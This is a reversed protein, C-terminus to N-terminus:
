NHDNHVVGFSAEILERPNNLKILMSSYLADVVILQALRSVTAGQRFTSEAAPVSLTHDSLGTLTSSGYRTISIVVAGSEKAAKAAKRIIPTEGSYSFVLATDREDLAAAGLLMMDEESPCTPLIGIRLCKQMFDEAVIHSAGIGLLLIRKSSLLREASSRLEDPSLLAPIMEINMGVTKILKSIITKEDDESSFDPVYFPESGKSKGAISEAVLVKLESFGKVGVRKCLRTVASPSSGSSLALEQINQRVAEKPSDIVYEAVRKESPSLDKEMHRLRTLIMLAM